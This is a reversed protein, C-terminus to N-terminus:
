PAKRNLPYYYVEDWGVGDPADPATGAARVLVDELPMYGPLELRLDVRAKAPIFFTAPSTGVFGGDIYVSAGDPATEIRSARPDHEPRISGAPCGALTVLTM